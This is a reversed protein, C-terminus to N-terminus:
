YSQNIATDNMVSFGLTSTMAELTGNAAGNRTMGLAMSVSLPSVMMNADSGSIENVKKFFEFGFANSTNILQKQKETLNVQKFEGPTDTKEKKCSLIFCLISIFSIILLSRKM